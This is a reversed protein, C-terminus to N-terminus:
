LEDPAMEDAREALYNENREKMLRLRDDKAKARAIASRILKNRENIYGEKDLEDKQEAIPMLHRWGVPFAFLTGCFYGFQNRAETERVRFNAEIASMLKEYSKLERRLSTELRGELTAEWAKDAQKDSEHRGTTECLPWATPKKALIGSFEESKRAYGAALFM